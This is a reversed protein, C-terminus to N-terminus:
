GRLQGVTCPNCFFIRPLKQAGLVFPEFFSVRLAADFGNSVTRERLGQVSM